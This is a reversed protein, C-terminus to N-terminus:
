LNNKNYDVNNTKKEKMLTQKNLNIPKKKITIRKIFKKNSNSNENENKYLLQNTNVNKSNSRNQRQTKNFIGSVGIFKINITNNLKNNLLNIKYNNIRNTNNKDYTNENFGTLNTKSNNNTKKFKKIEIKNFIRNNNNYPINRIKHNYSYYLDNKENGNDKEININNNTKFEKLKQFNNERDNFNQSNSVLEGRKKDYYNIKAKRNKTTKNCYNNNENDSYNEEDIINGSFNRIKNKEIKVTMNSTKASYHKRYNDRKNKEIFYNQLDEYNYNFSKKRSVILNDVSSNINNRRKKSKNDDFLVHKMKTIKRKENDNSIKINKIYKYVDEANNINLNKSLNLFFTYYKENEIKSKNYEEIDNIYKQKLNILNNVDNYVNNPNHTNYNYQYNNGKIGNFIHSLFLLQQINSLFDNELVSNEYNYKLNMLNLLLNKFKSKEGYNNKTFNNNCINITSCIINKRKNQEEKIKNKLKKNSEIINSLKQILKVNKNKLFKSKKKLNRLQFENELNNIFKRNDMEINSLYIKHKNNCENGNEMEESKKEKLNCKEDTKVAKKESNKDDSKNDELNYSNIYISIERSIEDNRFNYSYNNKINNNSYFDSNILSNNKNKSLSGIKKQSPYKKNLLIKMSNTEYINKNARKKLTIKNFKIFNNLVSNIKKCPPKIIISKKKSHKEEKLPINKGKLIEKIM